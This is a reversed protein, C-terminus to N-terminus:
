NIHKCVIETQNKYRYTEGYNQFIECFSTKAVRDMQTTPKLPKGWLCYQLFREGLRAAIVINWALLPSFQVYLFVTVTLMALVVVFVRVLLRSTIDASDVRM